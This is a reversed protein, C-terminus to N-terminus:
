KKPPTRIVTITYRAGFGQELQKPGMTHGFSLATFGRFGSACFKLGYLSSGSVRFGLGRFGHFFGQLGM